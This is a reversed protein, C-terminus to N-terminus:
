SSDPDPDPEPDPDPNLLFRIRILDIRIWLGAVLGSIRCLNILFVGFLFSFIQFFYKNIIAHFLPVVLM